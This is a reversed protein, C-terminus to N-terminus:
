RIVAASKPKGHSIAYSLSEREMERAPSVIFTDGTIAFPSTYIRNQVEVRITDAAHIGKEAAEKKEFIKGASVYDYSKRLGKNWGKTLMEERGTFTIKNINM